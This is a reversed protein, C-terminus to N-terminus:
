VFGRFENPDLKRRNNNGVVGNIVVLIGAEEIAGRLARLAETWTAHEGAWDQTRDLVQRVNAAVAEPNAELTVSGIFPLPTEGQEILFERMWGQRRQMVQVTELLNPSPRQVPADRLTRFDPIPLTDVPPTPLFFYGLPTLTKKALGELQKLTPKAVGSEWAPYKPFREELATTTLGSRERAWRLLEPKVAVRSM